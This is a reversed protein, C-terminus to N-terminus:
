KTPEYNRVIKITNMVNEIPTKPLIGHSLNFIHKNNKFKELIALTKEKLRDDDGSLLDKPNLNGQISINKKNAIKLIEEPYSEDLSIVDCIVENIFNTYNDKSGRPFHIIKTRSSFSRIAQSIKQNPKIIFNLYEDGNLLGAWSEFIKVCDVGSEIQKKLYEISLDTLIEMIEKAKKNKNRVFNIIKKHSVSTGGEIMYNLVTFPGGCFGILKKKNKKETLIRITQFINSIKKLCVDFERYNLDLKSEIPDLVPGHSPLFSVKQNLAFPIVLIDCFLIIFDFDFRKIPQLSIEAALEPSLCLDLFNKEKKRIARYEPLYRGAQRMFWIPTKNVIM